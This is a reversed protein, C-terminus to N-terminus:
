GPNVVYIPTTPLIVAPDAFQRVGVVNATNISPV